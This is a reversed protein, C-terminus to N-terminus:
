LNQCCQLQNPKDMTCPPVSIGVVNNGPCARHASHDAIQKQSVIHYIVTLVNRFAEEVTTSELASTQIFSLNNETLSHTKDTSVVWLHCLDSKNDVLMIIINSDAHYGLEKLWCEVNEYTLHKGINHVLLAGVAGQYYASTITCNHKQGATDWMQAKITKGNVQIGCTAFEMRITRKSELDFENRTFHDLLNSKGVGTDGILVVKFLSDYKDRWTWEGPGVPGNRM